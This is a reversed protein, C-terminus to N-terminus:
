LNNWMRLAMAEHDHIRAEHGEEAAIFLPTVGNDTRAQNLIWVARDASAIEFVTM